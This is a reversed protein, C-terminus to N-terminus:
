GLLSFRNKEKSISCHQCVGGLEGVESLHHNGAFGALHLHAGSELPSSWTEEASVM